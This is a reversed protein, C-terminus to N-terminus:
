PGALAPDTLLRQKRALVGEVGVGAARLELERLLHHAAEGLGDLL